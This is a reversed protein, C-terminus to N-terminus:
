CSMAGDMTKLVANWSNKIDSSLVDYSGQVHALSVKIEGVSEMSYPATSYQVASYQVTDHWFINTFHQMTPGVTNYQIRFIM